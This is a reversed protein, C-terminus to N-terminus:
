EMRQRQYSMARTLLRVCRLSRTTSPRTPKVPPTPMASLHCPVRLVGVMPAVRVVAGFTRHHRLHLRREEVVPGLDAALHQVAGIVQRRELGHAVRVACINELEGSPPASLM